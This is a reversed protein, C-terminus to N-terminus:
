YKVAVAVLLLALRRLGKSDPCNLIEMTSGTIVPGRLRLGKSDPCNLIEVLAANM